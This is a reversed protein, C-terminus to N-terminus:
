GIMMMMEHVYWCMWFIGDEKHKRGIEFAVGPYESWLPSDDSWEGSWKLTGRNRHISSYIHISPHITLTDMLHINVAADTNVATMMMMM